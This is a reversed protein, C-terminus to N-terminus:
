REIVIKGVHGAQRMSQYAEKVQDFGFVQDIVPEISNVEIARVMAEFMERSGVYIGQVTLRKFLTM